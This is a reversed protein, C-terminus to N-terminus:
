HNVQHRYHRRNATTPRNQLQELVLTDTSTRFGHAVKYQLCFDWNVCVDVM